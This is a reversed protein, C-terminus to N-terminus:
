PKVFEFDTKLTEYGVLNNEGEALHIYAHKSDHSYTDLWYTYGDHNNRLKLKDAAAAEVKQKFSLHNPDTMPQNVM